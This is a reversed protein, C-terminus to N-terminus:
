NSLNEGSENGSESVVMAAVGFIVVGGSFPKKILDSRFSLFVKAGSIEAGETAKTTPAVIRSKPINTIRPDESKLDTLCNNDIRFLRVYMTATDM